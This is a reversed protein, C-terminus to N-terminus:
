QSISSPLLLRYRGNADSTAAGVEIARPRAEGDESAAGIWARLTAGPIPDGGETLLKGVLLAPESIRLSGLDLPQPESTAAAVSPRVLWPLNKSEDSKVFLDVLGPDLPLDFAGMADTQTSAVRPLAALVASKGPSFLAELLSVDHTAAPAISAFADSAVDEFPTKVTGTLRSATQVEFTRGKGLDTDAFSWTQITVAHESAGTPLAVVDYKGPLINAGFTGTSDTAVATQYLANDGYEGALLRRSLLLVNAEIPAGDPTRVSAELPIFRQTAAVLKAIQLSVDLDGDPDIAALKWFLEPMGLQKLSQPPRIVLVPDSDQSAGKASPWFWIHFTELGEEGEPFGDASSGIPRGRQNELLEVRWCEKPNADCGAPHPVDLQGRLRSPSSRTFHLETYHEILQEKLLLKPLACGPPLAVSPTLVIDYRGRPVAVHPGGVTDDHDAYYASLPMGVPHGVPHLEMTTPLAVGAWEPGCPEPLQKLTLTALVDIPPALALSVGRVYGDEDTGQLHLGFSSAPELVQHGAGVPADKPLSFEFYLNTLDAKTAVCLFENGDSRCAGSPCDRDSACENRREDVLGGLQLSCGAGGLLSAFGIGLVALKM